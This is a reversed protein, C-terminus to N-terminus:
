KFNFKIVEDAVVLLLGINDWLICCCKKLEVDLDTSEKKIKIKKFINKFIFRNKKNSRGCKFSRNGLWNCTIIRYSALLFM